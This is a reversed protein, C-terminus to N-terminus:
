IYEYNVIVDGAAVVTVDTDGAAGTIGLGLGLSLRYGATPIPILLNQGAPIPFTHVPVDTGVVPASAKNYLKLFKTAASANFAILMGLNAAAAKILTANTGAASILKSATPYGSTTGSPLLGVAGLSNTGAPLPNDIAVMQASCTAQMTVAAVGTVAALAVLRFNAIASVDVAFMGTAGSPITATSFGTGVNLIASVGAMTVWNIGNQSVQPTLAGSYVGTVQFVVTSTKEMDSFGVFSGPTGIGTANLNQTSIIGIASTDITSLPNGIEDVVTVYAAGDKTHALVGGYKVADSRM